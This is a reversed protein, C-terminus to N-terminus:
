RNKRRKRFFNKLLRSSEDALLGGTVEINHNLLGDRGIRYCSEVAGTKPDRAGYVLRDLRAHILAGMCMICPELTVYLCSNRPLRYNGLQRCAQRLVTIEAHGTPDNTSIPQNHGVAAPASDITLVAGVPVEGLQEGITAQELAQRMITLDHEPTYGTTPSHRSM